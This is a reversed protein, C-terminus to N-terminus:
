PRRVPEAYRVLFDTLSAALEIVEYGPSSMTESFYAVAGSRSDWFFFQYGDHSGIVVAGVPLELNEEECCSKALTLAASLQELTMGYTEYPEGPFAGMVRLFAEYEAPLEDVGHLRRVYQVQDPTCGRADPIERAIERFRDDLQDNTM